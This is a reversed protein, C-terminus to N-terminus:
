LVDACWGGPHAACENLGHRPLETLRWSYSQSTGSWIRLSLWSSAVLANGRRPWISRDSYTSATLARCGPSVAAMSRPSRVARAAFRRRPCAAACSPRRNSQARALSKSTTKKWTSAPAVGRRWPKERGAAGALRGAHGGAARTRCRTRPGVDSFVGAAGWDSDERALLPLRRFLAL